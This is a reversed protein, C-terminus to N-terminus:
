RKGERLDLREIRVLRKLDFLRKPLNAADNLIADIDPDHHRAELRLEVGANPLEFWTTHARELLVFQQTPLASYVLQPGAGIHADLYAPADPVRYHAKAASHAYVASFEFADGQPTTLNVELRTTAGGTASSSRTSVRRFHGQVGPVGRRTLEASSRIQDTLFFIVSGAGDVGVVTALFWEQNPAADTLPKGDPGRGDHEEYVAFILPSGLMTVLSPLGAARRAQNTREVVRGVAEYAAPGPAMWVILQDWM